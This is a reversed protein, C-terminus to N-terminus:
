KMLEDTLKLIQPALQKRRRATIFSYVPYAAALVLLGAIGVVISPFLRNWVMALCLGFGFILTGTLGVLISLIAGPRTTSADLRRLQELKDPEPPLYKQRISKIEDQEQASYTYIFPEQNDAM